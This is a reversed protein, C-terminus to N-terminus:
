GVAYVEIHEVLPEPEEEKVRELPYLDGNPDGQSMRYACATRPRM